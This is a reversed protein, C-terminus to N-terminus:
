YSGATTRRRGRDNPDFPNRTPDFIEEEEEEEGTETTNKKKNKDAAPKNKLVAAPKMMDVATDFVAWAEEKDWNKKLNIAKPYYYALEPQLNLEYDGTDYLGNGNRDEIIRAYYKGPKLFPFYAQGNEVIATREVADSATLLEVFAPMGAPIGSLNFTLSCYDAPSKTTFEFSMPRMPKGYIDTGALSDIELRYKTSYDWPYDLIFRRPQLSDPQTLHMAKPVPQFLSDVMISLHVATSDFRTLPAPAEFEFPLYVEQSSQTPQVWKTTIRALSDEVSIRNKEKKNEKPKVRRMFFRLSDTVESLQQLSDTALYNVVLTLSDKRMLDPRLWYVLSDRKESAELRGIPLFNDGDAVTIRPLRTPSANFKLWVRTSDLRESKALYQPRKESNFSRLLIDNPLFLTRGRSVVTDLKGTLPDFVSDAAETRRASPSVTVDYFAIDEEPTSYTYDNDRDALAFVRYTGEKLGRVTFQGRDDTKAMRLFPTKMFATDDLNSYVGVLMQQQPELNRAGLVRGSIRLTDLTPGTSFTYAFGQLKNAENNDEIADAFDITYTTNPILSDFEVTVRRGLSSVRPVDKSVPSVVVKSFADKVNILEDFTLTIKRQDVNVAGRSPDAKVLRPPEEDRPGGSPNGINACSTLFSAGIVLAACTATFHNNAIIRM